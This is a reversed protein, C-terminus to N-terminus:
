SACRFEGLHAHRDDARAAVLLSQGLQFLGDAIGRPDRGDGDVQGVVVRRLADHVERDVAPTVDVEQDVVGSDAAWLRQVFGVVFRQVVEQIQHQPRRKPERAVHQGVHCGPDAIMLMVEVKATTPPSRPPGVGRGLAPQRRQGGVDGALVPRVADAAVGDGGPHDTVGITSLAQLISRNRLILVSIVGCWRSPVTSSMALVTANKHEGPPLKMLPCVITTSPPHLEVFYRDSNASVDSHIARHIQKRHQILGYAAKGIAARHIVSSRRQPGPKLQAVPCQTQGRRDPLLM